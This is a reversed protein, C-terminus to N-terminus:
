GGGESSSEAARHRAKRQEVPEHRLAGIGVGGVALVRGDRCWLRLRAPPRRRRGAFEAALAPREQAQTLLPEAVESADRELHVPAVAKTLIEHELAAGLQDAEFRPDV